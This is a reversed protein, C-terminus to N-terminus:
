ADSEQIVEFALDTVVENNYGVRILKLADVKDTLIRREEASELEILVRPEEKTNYVISAKM